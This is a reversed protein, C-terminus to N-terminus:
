LSGRDAGGLVGQHGEILVVWDVRFHGGILVVWYVRFHGRLWSVGLSRVEEYMKKPNPLMSGRRNKTRKLTAMGSVLSSGLQSPTTLLMNTVDQM